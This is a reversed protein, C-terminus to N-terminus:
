FIDNVAGEGGLVEAKAKFLKMKIELKGSHFIIYSWSMFFFFFSTYFIINLAEEGDFFIKFFCRYRYM